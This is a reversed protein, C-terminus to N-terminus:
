RIGTSSSVQCTRASASLNQSKASGQPQGGSVPTGDPLHAAIQQALDAFSGFPNGNRSILEPRRDIVALAGFGDYKLEFVYNPDDFPLNRRQLPM